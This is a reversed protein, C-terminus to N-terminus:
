MIRYRGDADTVQVRELGTDVNVVTITVGPMVAKSEDSVTGSISGTTGQAAALAPAVILAAIAFCTKLAKM